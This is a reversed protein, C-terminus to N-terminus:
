GAPQYIFEIHMAGTHDNGFDITADLPLIVTGTTTDVTPAQTNSTSISAQRTDEPAGGADKSANGAIGALTITRDRDVGYGTQVWDGTMQASFASGTGTRVTDPMTVTVTGVAHNRNQKNDGWNNDWGVQFTRTGPGVTTTGNDIAGAAPPDTGINGGYSRTVRISSLRFTTPAGTTVPPTTTPATVRPLTTPTKPSTTSSSTTTTAGATTTVGSTGVGIVVTTGTKTDIVTVTTMPNSAPQVVVVTTPSFGPWKPGTYTPSTSPVPPLLPNGCYCRVRPLGYNDILVATGAQLVSQRPTARGNSYGHNTVRTDAALIVPTLATVYSRIQATDIGLVRAFERGQGSHGELFSVLQQKDCVSLEQTGGYIGVRDGRVATLPVAGSSTTTGATSSTSPLPVSTPANEPVLSGTWPFPGTSATPELLIEGAPKSTPTAEQKSGGGSNVVFYGILLALVMVGAVIALLVKRRDDGPAPPTPAGPPGLPPSPASGVPPEVPPEGTSSM